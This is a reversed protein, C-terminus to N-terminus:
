VSIAWSPNLLLKVSPSHSGRTGEEGRGGAGVQQTGSRKSEGKCGARTADARHGTVCAHCAARCCSQYLLCLGTHSAHPKPATHPAGPSRPQSPCPARTEAATQAPQSRPRPQHHARLLTTPSPWTICSGLAQVWGTRGRLDARSRHQPFLCATNESAGVARRGARTIPDSASPVPSPTPATPLLWRSSQANSARRDAPPCSPAGAWGCCLTPLQFPM